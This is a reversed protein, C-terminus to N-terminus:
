LYTFGSYTNESYFMKPISRFLKGFIVSVQETMVPELCDKALKWDWEIPNNTTDLLTKWYIM